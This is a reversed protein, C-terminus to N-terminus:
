THRRIRGEYLCKHFSETIEKTAKINPKTVNMAIRGNAMIEMTIPIRIMKISTGNQIFHQGVESL